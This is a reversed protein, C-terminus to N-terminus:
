CKVLCNVITKMCKLTIFPVNISRFNIEKERSIYSTLIFYNLFIIDLFYATILARILYLKFSKVCDNFKIM